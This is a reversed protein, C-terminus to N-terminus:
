FTVYIVATDAAVLCMVPYASKELPIMTPTDTMFIMLFLHSGSTTSSNNSLPTLMALSIISKPLRM